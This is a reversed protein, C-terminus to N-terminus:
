HSGNSIEQDLPLVWKKCSDGKEEEGEGEEESEISGGVGEEGDVEGEGERSRRNRRRDGDGAGARWNLGDIAINISEVMSPIYAHSPLSELGHIVNRTKIVHLRDLLQLRPLPHLM